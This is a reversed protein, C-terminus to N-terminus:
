TAVSAESLWTKWYGKLRQSFQKPTEAYFRQGLALAESRLETRRQSILATLLETEGDKRSEVLKDRTLEELVVLDHDRGLADTLLHAQEVMEGILSPCLAELIELQHRLYKVSKRWEHLNEDTAGHLVERMDRWGQEYTDRIGRNFVGFRDPLSPWDEIRKQVKRASASVKSMAKQRELIQKRLDRRRLVLKNRLTKFAGKGVQDKFHSLLGDLTEIMVDADRVSSLPKGLKRLSDDERDYTKDGLGERILRLLARLKKFQKRANHVARGRTAASRQSLSAVAADIIRSSIKQFQKELGKQKKLKFAM